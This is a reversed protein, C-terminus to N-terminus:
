HEAPENDLAKSNALPGVGTRGPRDPITIVAQGVNNSYNSEPLMHCFGNSDLYPCAENGRAQFPPNATVRIIYTGPPVVAQGDGGDLVFYQGGLYFRYTDSWNVTIGQNGAVTTTGCSRYQPSRPPENGTSSPVPDTDLMCFGRKAARWVHGTAPDILEYLAYNRFHYHDHCSAFEFLDDGAAVHERPDGVYIDADGRNETTVTFRVLKRLGPQVGGEIVSCYTAGLKEERVVWQQSIIDERVVLDPLGASAPRAAVAPLLLTLCAVTTRFARGRNSM